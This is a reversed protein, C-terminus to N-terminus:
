SETAKTILHRVDSAVLWVKKEPNGIGASGNHLDTVKQDPKKVLAAVAVVDGSVLEVFAKDPKDAVATQLNELSM